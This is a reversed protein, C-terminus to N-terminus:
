PKRGATWATGNWYMEGGSGATSGQVYQGTSWSTAPSAVVGSSTAATSTAPPTSGAPTFSGPTGATAGTAATATTTTTPVTQWGSISWELDFSSADGVDGSLPTFPQPIVTGYFQPNTASIPKSSSPLVTFPVAVAGAVAATLIENTGAVDFSHYLSAKLTWKVTGPYERIGCATKVEVTSVDPTMEIHSLECRLTKGSISLDPNYLIVPEPDAM